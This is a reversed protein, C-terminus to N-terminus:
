QAVTVDDIFDSIMPNINLLRWPRMDSMEELRRYKTNLEQVQSKMSAAPDDENQKMHSSLILDFMTHDYRVFNGVQWKYIKLFDEFNSNSLKHSKLVKFIQLFVFNPITINHSSLNTLLSIMTSPQFNKLELYYSILPHYTEYIPTIPFLLFENTQLKLTDLTNLIDIYTRKEHKSSLSIVRRNSGKLNSELKSIITQSMEIENNLILSKLCINIIAIDVTLGQEVMIKLTELLGDQDNKAVCFRMLLEFSIRNPKIKYKVLDENIISMLGYQSDDKVAYKLFMNMTSIDLKEGDSLRKRVVRHYEHRLARPNSLHNLKLFLASNEEKWSVDMGSEKLDSLLVHFWKSIQRMSDGASAKMFQSILHELHQNNIHLPQPYPLEKYAEFLSRFHVYETDPYLCRLFRFYQSKPAQSRPILERQKVCLRQNNLVPSRQTAARHLAQFRHARQLAPLSTHQPRASVLRLLYQALSSM